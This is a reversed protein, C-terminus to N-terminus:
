LTSWASIHHNEIPLTQKKEERLLYKKYSAHLGTPYMLLLLVSVSFPFRFVLDSVPKVNCVIPKIRNCPLAHVNDIVVISRLEDASVVREAPSQQLWIDRASHVRKLLLV